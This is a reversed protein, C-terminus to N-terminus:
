IKIKDIYIETSLIMKKQLKRKIAAKLLQFLKRQPESLYM